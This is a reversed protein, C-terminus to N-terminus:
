LEPTTRTKSARVIRQPDHLTCSTDSVMDELTGDSGPPSAQPQPASFAPEAASPEAAAQRAPGERVVLSDGNGIGLNAISIADDLIQVVV